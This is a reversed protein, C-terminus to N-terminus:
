LPRVLSDYIVILLWSCGITCGSFKAIASSIDTASFM